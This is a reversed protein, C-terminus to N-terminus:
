QLDGASPPQTHLNFREECERVFSSEDFDPRRNMWLLETNLTNILSVCRKYIRLRTAYPKLDDEIKRKLRLSNTSAFFYAFSSQLLAIQKRLPDYKRNLNKCDTILSDPLGMAGPDVTAEIWIAQKELEILQSSLKTILNLAQEIEEETPTSPEGQHEETLTKYISHNLLSRTLSQIHSLSEDFQGLTRKQSEFEHTYVKAMIEVTQSQIRAIEEYIRALDRQSKLTLLTDIMQVAILAAATTPEPSLILYTASWARDRDTKATIFGYVAMAQAIFKMGATGIQPNNSMVLQPNRNVFEALQHKLQEKAYESLAARGVKEEIEGASATTTLPSSVFAIVATGLLFSITQKSVRNRKM